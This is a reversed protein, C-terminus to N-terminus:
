ESRAQLVEELGRGRYVRDPHPNWVPHASRLNNIAFLIPSNKSNFSVAVLLGWLLQSLGPM